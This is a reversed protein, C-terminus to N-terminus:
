YPIRLNRVTPKPMLQKENISRAADYQSLLIAAKIIQVDKDYHAKHPRAGRPRM